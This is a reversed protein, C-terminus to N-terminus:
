YHEHNVNEFKEIDTKELKVDKMYIEVDFEKLFNLLREADKKEIVVVSRILSTAYYGM